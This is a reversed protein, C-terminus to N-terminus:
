RRVNRLAEAYDALVRSKAGEQAKGAAARSGVGGDPGRRQPVRELVPGRGGHREARIDQAGDVAARGDAVGKGADVCRAALQQPDQTPDAYLQDALPGLGAELAIQGRTRRKPKYPLYLDELTTKTEAQRIDRELEPTLKGQEQISA